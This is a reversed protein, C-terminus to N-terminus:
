CQAGTDKPHLKVDEAEEVLRAPAPADTDKREKEQLNGYRFRLLPPLGCLM